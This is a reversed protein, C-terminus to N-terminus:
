LERLREPPIILAEVAGEATADMLAPRGALQALEGLFDGQEPRIVLQPLDLDTHEAVAIRGALVVVLGPAVEGATMIREGAAFSRVEGFRQVREIQLSDLKPVIQDRRQDIISPTPVSPM